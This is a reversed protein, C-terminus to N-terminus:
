VQAPTMEAVEVLQEFPLGARENLERVAGLSPGEFYCHTQSSAPLFFSRLWRVETGESQMGAACSKVRAGAGALADPTIGPLSRIAVFTAM